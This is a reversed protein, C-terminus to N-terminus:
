PFTGRGGRQMDESKHEEDVGLEDRNERLKNPDADGAQGEDRADRPHKGTQDTPTGKLPRTSEDKLRTRSDANKM